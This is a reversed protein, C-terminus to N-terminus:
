GGVVYVWVPTYDADAGTAADAQVEGLLIPIGGDHDAGLKGIVGADGDHVSGLLDGGLDDLMEPERARRHPDLVARLLIGRVSLLLREVEHDEIVVLHFAGQPAPIQVLLNALRGPLPQVTGGDLQQDPVFYLFAICLLFSPQAPSTAQHFRKEPSSRVLQVAKFEELQRPAFSKQAEVRRYRRSEPRLGRGEFAAYISRITRGPLVDRVSPLV